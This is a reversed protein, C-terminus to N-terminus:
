KKSVRPLSRVMKTLRLSKLSPKRVPVSSSCPVINSHHEAESVIIEDGESVFAEGFAYAVLNIGATTGSTFVIEERSAANLCLRVTERTSEVEDTAKAALAHVARHINANAHLSLRSVTDMVSQPRQSTAANDLYVLPKGYVSDSLAPFFSRIDAATM